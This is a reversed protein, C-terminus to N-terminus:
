DRKQLDRAHTRPTRFAAKLLRSRSGLRGQGGSVERDTARRRGLRPRPCRPDPVAARRVRTRGRRNRGPRRHAAATGTYGLRPRQALFPIPDPEGQRLTTKDRAWALTISNGTAPPPTGRLSEGGPLDRSPAGGRWSPSAVPRRGQSRRGRLLRAQPPRLEAQTGPSVLTSPFGEWPTRGLNQRRQAVCGISQPVWDNFCFVFIGETNSTFRCVVKHRAVSEATRPRSPVARCPRRQRTVLQFQSSPGM